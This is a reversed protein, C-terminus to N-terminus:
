KQLFTNASTLGGPRGNVCPADHGDDCLNPTILNFIATTSISQLNTTLKNLKVVNQGCDTSDIISQFYM